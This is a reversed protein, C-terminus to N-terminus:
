CYKESKWPNTSYNQWASNQATFICRHIFCLGRHEHLLCELCPVSWWCPLSISYRKHQLCCLRCSGNISNVPFKRHEAKWSDPERLHTTLPMVETQLIYSSTYSEGPWGTDGTPRLCCIWPSTLPLTEPSSWERLKPGGYASLLETCSLPSLSNVLCLNLLTLLPCKILFVWYPSGHPGARSNLDLLVLLSSALVLPLPTKPTADWQPLLM